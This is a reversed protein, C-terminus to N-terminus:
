QDLLKMVFAKCDEKNGIYGYSKASKKINVDLFDSVLSFASGKKIESTLTTIPNRLMPSTSHLYADITSIGALSFPDYKVYGKYEFGNIKITLLRPNPSSYLSTKKILPTPIKYLIRYENEIDTYKSKIIRTYFSHLIGLLAGTHSMMDNIDPSEIFDNELLQLLGTTKMLFEDIKHDQMRRAYKMDRGLLNRGIMDGSVKDIIPVIFIFHVDNDDFNDIWDITNPNLIHFYSAYMYPILPNLILYLKRAAESSFESENLAPQMLDQVTQKFEIEDYDAFKYMSENRTVLTSLFDRFSVIGKEIKEAYQKGYIGRILIM